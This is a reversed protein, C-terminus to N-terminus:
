MAMREPQSPFIGESHLAAQTWMRALGILAEKETESESLTAVAMAEEAYRWFEIANAHKMPLGQRVTPAKIPVTPAFGTGILM